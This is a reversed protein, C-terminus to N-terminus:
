PELSGLLGLRQELRDLQRRVEEVDTAGRWLENCDSAFREAAACLTDYAADWLIARPGTVRLPAGDPAADLQELLADIEERRQAGETANAAQQRIADLSARVAARQQEPIQVTAMSM